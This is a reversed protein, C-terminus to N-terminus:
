LLQPVVVENSQNRLDVVYRPQMEVGLQDIAWWDDNREYVARDETHSHHKLMGTGVIRDDGAVSMLDEPPVDSWKHEPLIHHNYLWNDWEGARLDSFTFRVTLDDEAVVEDLWDSLPAYPVGPADRLNVTFVVDEATLPEGDHWRVGERLRLVYEDDSVWEGDAALWPELETTWPDFVFLTEYIGQRVYTAQGGSHLPNWNSYTGWEAGTTFVTESRPFEVEP